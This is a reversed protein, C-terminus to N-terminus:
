IESSGAESSQNPDRLEIALNVGCLEHDFLLAQKTNFPFGKILYGNFNLDSEPIEGESGFLKAVRKVMSEEDESTNPSPTVYKFLPFIQDLYKQQLAAEVNNSYVVVKPM